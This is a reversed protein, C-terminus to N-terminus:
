RRGCINIAEKWNVGAQRRHIFCEVTQKHSKSGQCLAVANEWEWKTGGGWDIDGRM